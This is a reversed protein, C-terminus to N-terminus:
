TVQERGPLDAAPINYLPTQLTGSRTGAPGPLRAHIDDPYICKRQPRALRVM